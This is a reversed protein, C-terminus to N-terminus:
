QNQCTGILAQQFSAKESGKRTMMLTTSKLYVNELYRDMKHDNVSRAIRKIDCYIDDQENCVKWRFIKKPIWWKSIRVGNGMMIARRFPIYFLYYITVFQLTFQLSASHQIEKRLFLIIVLIFIENKGPKIGPERIDKGIELSNLLIM